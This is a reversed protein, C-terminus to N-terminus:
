RITPIQPLRTRAKQRHLHRPHARNRRPRAPNRGPQDERAPLYTSRRRLEHHFPDRNAFPLDSDCASYVGRRPRTLPFGNRVNLQNHYARRCPCPSAPQMLSRACTPAPATPSSSPWAACLPLDCIPPQWRTLLPSFSVRPRRSITTSTRVNGCYVETHQTRHEVVVRLDGHILFDLWDEFHNGRAAGCTIHTFQPGTPAYEHTRAALRPDTILAGRLRLLAHMVTRRTAAAARPPRLPDATRRKLTKAVAAALRVHIPQRVTHKNRM